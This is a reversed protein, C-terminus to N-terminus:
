QHVLDSQDTPGSGYLGLQFRYSVVGERGFVDVKAVRM